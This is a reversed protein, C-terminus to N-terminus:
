EGKQEMRFVPSVPGPESAGVENYARVRFCYEQQPLLGSSVKYSTSKCQATLESWDGSEVRGQNKVEVVYGLVASGGDYCPGSWSLVLSTVSIPSIVPCSSPPQPREPPILIFLTSLYSCVYKVHDQRQLSHTKKGIVSLTLTHQASNKRDRVVVTYRGTHQPKAEAIVLTTSLDTNEAWLEPGDVIQMHVTHLFSSTLQWFLIHCNYKEAFWAYTLHTCKM